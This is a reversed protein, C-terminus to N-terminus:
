ATILSYYPQLIWPPLYVYMYMKLHSTYMHIYTYTYVYIMKNKYYMYVIYYMIIHVYTGSTNVLGLHTLIDIWEDFDEETYIQHILCDLIRQNATFVDQCELISGIDDDTLFYELQYVTSMYDDPMGWVLANYRSQLEVFCLNYTRVVYKLVNRSDCITASNHSYVDTCYCM